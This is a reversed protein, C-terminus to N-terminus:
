YFVIIERELVLVLISLCVHFILNLQPGLCVVFAYMLWERGGHLMLLSAPVMNHVPLLICPLNFRCQSIRQWPTGIFSPSSTGEKGSSIQVSLDSLWVDGCGSFLSIQDNGGKVSTLCEDMLGEPVCVCVCVFVSLYVKPLLRKCLSRGRLLTQPLFLFSHLAWCCAALRSTCCLLLMRWHTQLHM